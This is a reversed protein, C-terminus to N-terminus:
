QSLTPPGHQFDHGLHIPVWPVSGLSYIVGCGMIIKVLVIPIGLGDPSSIALHTGVWLYDRLLQQSGPWFTQPPTGVENHSGVERM